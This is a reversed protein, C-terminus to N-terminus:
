SGAKGELAEVREELREVRSAITEAGLERAMCERAWQSISKNEAKARDYIRRHLRAGVEGEGVSVVVQHVERKRSM